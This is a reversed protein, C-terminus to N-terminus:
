IFRLFMVIIITLSLLCSFHFFVFLCFASKVIMVTGMKVIMKFDCDHLPHFSVWSVLFDVTYYPNWILLCILSWNDANIGNMPRHLISLSWTFVRNSCALSYTLTSCHRCKYQECALTCHWVTPHRKGM